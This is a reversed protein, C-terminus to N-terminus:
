TSNWGELGGLVVAMQEWGARKLLSAGIMSCRGSGCFITIKRERPVEELHAPLQTLHIHHANAIRGQGEM